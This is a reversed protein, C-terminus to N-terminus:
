QLFFLLSLVCLIHYIRIHVVNSTSFEELVGGMPNISHNDAQQTAAADINASSHNYAFLGVTSNLSTTPAAKTTTTIGTSMTEEQLTLYLSDSSSLLFVQKNTESEAKTNLANNENCVFAIASDNILYNEIIEKKCSLAAAISFLLLATSGKWKINNLKM